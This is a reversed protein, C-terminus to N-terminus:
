PGRPRARRRRNARLEVLDRTQAPRRRDGAGRARVDAAGERDRGRRAEVAARSRVLDGAAVAGVREDAAGAVVGLVAAVALVEELLVRGRVAAVVEDAAAAGEVREVVALARDADGDVEVVDGVVALRPDLVVVGVGVDLEDVAAGAGVRDDVVGADELDRVSWPPPSSSVIVPPTAPSM